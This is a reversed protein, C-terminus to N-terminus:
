TFFGSFIDIYGLQAMWLGHVILGSIMGLLVLVAVIGSVIYWFIKTKWFDKRMDCRKKLSKIM